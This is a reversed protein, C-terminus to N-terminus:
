LGPRGSGGRGCPAGPPAPQLHGRQLGLMPGPTHTVHSPHKPQIRFSPAGEELHAELIRQSALAKQETRRSGGPGPCPVSAARQACAVPGCAWLRPLFPAGRPAEAAGPAPVAGWSGPRRSSLLLTRPVCRIRGRPSHGRQGFPGRSCCSAPTGLVGVVLPPRPPRQELRATCGVAGPRGPGPSAGSHGGSQGAGASARPPWRTRGCGARPRPCRPRTSSTPAPPGTVGRGWRLGLSASPRRGETVRSPSIM